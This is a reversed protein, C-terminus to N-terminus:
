HVDQLDSPWLFYFIFVQRCLGSLIEDYLFKGSHSCFVQHAVILTSMFVAPIIHPMILFAAQLAAASARHEVLLGFDNTLYTFYIAQWHWM